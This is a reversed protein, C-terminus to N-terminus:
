HPKVALTERPDRNVLEQLWHEVRELANDDLSTHETEAGDPLLATVATKGVVGSGGTVLVRLECIGLPEPHSLCSYHWEPRHGATLASSADCDGAISRATASEYDTM